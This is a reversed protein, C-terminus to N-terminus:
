QFIELFINFFRNVDVDYCVQIHSERSENKTKLRLDAVTQGRTLEGKTEVDVFLRETKVLSKDIAVAMALVDHIACGDLKDVIMDHDFLPKVIKEVYDGILTHSEKIKQVHVPKLLPKLTVDLSVLTIPVGSKFVIKAAEPDVYMNFEAVPTINGSVRIAGGMIIVEKVNSALRPESRIAEAINTLPGTALLTIESPNDMIKSIIAEVANHSNKSSNTSTDLTSAGLKEHPITKRELSFKHVIPRELGKFVPIHEITSMEVIRLANEYAIDVTVNGGVTTIMELKAKKNKLGLLIALADDIGPDCDHIIRTM